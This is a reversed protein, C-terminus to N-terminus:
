GTATGVSGDLDRIYSQVIKKGSWGASHMKQHDPLFFDQFPDPRCTSDPNDVDDSAVPPSKQTRGYGDARLAARQLRPICLDRRNAEANCNHGNQRLAFTNPIKDEKM